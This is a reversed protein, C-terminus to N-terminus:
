IKTHGAYAMQPAKRNDAYNAAKIELALAM